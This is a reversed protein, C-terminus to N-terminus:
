LFYSPLRQQVLTHTDARTCLEQRTAPSKSCPLALDEFIMKPLLILIFVGISDSSKWIYYICECCYSLALQEAQNCTSGYSPAEETDASTQTKRTMTM